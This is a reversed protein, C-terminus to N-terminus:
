YNYQIKSARLLHTLISAPSKVKRFYPLWVPQLSRFMILESICYFHDCLIPLFSLQWLGRVVDFNSHHLWFCGRDWGRTDTFLDERTDNDFMFDCSIFQHQVHSGQGCSLLLRPWSTHGTPFWAITEWYLLVKTLSVDTQLSTPM